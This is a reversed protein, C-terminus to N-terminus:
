KTEHFRVNSENESSFHLPKKMEHEPKKEAVFKIEKLKVLGALKQAVIDTFQAPLETPLSVTAKEETIEVKIKDEPIKLTTNLFAIIKESHDIIKKSIKVEYVVEKGALPHNFNVIIRGGSVRTITGIQGDVDIQLGPQPQMNHEKFASIPMIRMKKVDRKGFAQEPGLEVTFSEGVEKGILQQDLGPLIQQEGVCITASGFKMKEEYFGNDKAVQEVTTDFIKGDKLKGTYDVVIFDHLNVKETM